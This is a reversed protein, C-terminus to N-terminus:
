GSDRQRTTLNDSTWCAKDDDGLRKFDEKDEERRM